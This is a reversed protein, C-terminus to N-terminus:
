SAKISNILDIVDNDPNNIRDLYKIALEKENISYLVYGLNFLTDTDDSKLELAKNLYPLVNNLRNLDYYKIALLNLLTVPDDYKTCIVKIIQETNYANLKKLGEDIKEETKIEDIIKKIVATDDQAKAKVIYQYASLQEINKSGNIQGLAQVFKKDEESQPLSVASVEMNTCGAEAFMKAIENLTFFRLHTRDLIGADEYTWHGNLLSKIVSFHMVNPVSALIKGDPKAFETLKKLVGWPDQLHELVDALIIYDFFEEPYEIDQTEINGIKIDAFSKADEAASSNLEVGYLRANKFLNKIKLLTGGSACGIELVNIEDDTSKDMLEIIEHRIFNSYNPDFGWKDIFKQKNTQLLNVFRERNEGFSVSGFHHIFVDRCLMLRYGSKRIRLSYDDDEYNGPTFREDLLGIKDVVERKILMCFGILKLREEWQNPNAVNLQKAFKQMEELSKYNVSIAQYYSCNNTIAGVAGIDASSHLCNVLNELWNYTVVTDNNLLLINDGAAIEIGQNCGKPFGQNESNYIAKIDKQQKLWKVTDDTSNNDVVILEYSYKSTYKRISEICLKTYELKNYTLIIISTKM